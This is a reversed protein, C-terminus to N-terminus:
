RVLFRMVDSPRWAWLESVANQLRYRMAGGAWEAAGNELGWNMAHLVYLHVGSLPEHGAEFAARAQQNVALDNEKIFETM